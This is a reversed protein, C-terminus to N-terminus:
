ILTAASLGLAALLLPVAAYLLKKGAARRAAPNDAVWVSAGVLAVGGFFGGAVAVHNYAATAARDGPAPQLAAFLTAATSITAVGVVGLAAAIKSDAEPEVLLQAAM